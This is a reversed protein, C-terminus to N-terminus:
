LTFESIISSTSAASFFVWLVSYFTVENWFTLVFFIYFINSKTYESNYFIRFYLFTYKNNMLISEFRRPVIIRGVYNPCLDLRPEPKWIIGFQPRWVLQAMMQSPMSWGIVDRPWLDIVVALVALKWWYASVHYQGGVETRLRPTFIMSWCIKQCLCITFVTALQASSEPLKQGWGYRCLSVAVTIVTWTTVRLVCNMVWAHLVTVSSWTFVECVSIDCHKRFQQRTSIKTRRQCWPYWASHGDPLKSALSM